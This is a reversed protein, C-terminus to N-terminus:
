ISTLAAALEFLKFNRGSKEKTQREYWVVSTGGSGSYRNWSGWHIGSISKIKEQVNM